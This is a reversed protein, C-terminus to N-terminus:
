IVEWICGKSVASIDRAHGTQVVGHAWHISGQNSSSNFEVRTGSAFSRTWIAGQKTALGLPEGLPMDYEPLWDLWTDPVDPWSEESHWALACHYYANEGAGILFAALSSTDGNICQNGEPYDGVFAEVTINRSTITQLVEICNEVGVFDEIMMAANSSGSLGLHNNITYGGTRALAQDLEGIAVIHAKQWDLLVQSDSPWNPLGQHVNAEDIFCGKCGQKTATICEDIWANRMDPNSFNFGWYFATNNFILDDGTVNKIRWSPNDIM